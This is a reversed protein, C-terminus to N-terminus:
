DEQSFDYSNGFGRHLYRQLAADRSVWDVPVDLDLMGDTELRQLIPRIDESFELRMRNRFWPAFHIMALMVRTQDTTNPMGAHWLRLDRIVISGKKLSPQTPPSIQRQQALHAEQIRGSAREGHAGEQAEIGFQNHTGLWIETSGNEPTTTVLPVNVVLAFPHNPHAFDADSHVPQRQPEAGLVVPMASNASCFTWKPRPGLVATTVQTAIPNAFILPNFYESVPPPDQQINGRNYNFPTKEGQSLLTQADDVMKKNLADLFKHPVIDEIVVLGDQHVHRVAKELNRHNLCSCYGIPGFANVLVSPTKATFAIGCIDLALHHLFDSKSLTEHQFISLYSLHKAEAESAFIALILLGVLYYHLASAHCPQLLWITPFPTSSNQRSYPLMHAPLQQHWECLSDFSNSWTLNDAEDRFCDNIIRGLVLTIANLHGQDSHLDLLPQSTELGMKLPCREFLSFTIDERLYNWFGAELLPTRTVTAFLGPVSAMSYAGRLHVNPDTDGSLIEYSRLLCTAALAIGGRVLENESELEILLKVCRTHHEEALPRLCQSVNSVYNHFLRAIKQDELYHRPVDVTATEQPDFQVPLLM